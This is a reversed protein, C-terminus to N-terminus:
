TAGAHQDTKAATRGRAHIGAGIRLIQIKVRNLTAIRFHLATRLLHYVAAPLHTGVIKNQRYM